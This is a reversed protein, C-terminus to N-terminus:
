VCAIDMELQEGKRPRIANFFRPAKAAALFKVLNPYTGRHKLLWDAFADWSEITQLSADGCYIVLAHCFEINKLVREPRLNGRFLRLEVTDRGVNAIDYRSESRKKGDSFKKEGRECYSNSERQAIMAVRPALTPCNLFVLLKGITLASLASKNIHVHMGCNTTNEGSKATRLPGKLTDAWGFSDRHQELTLPVTVLEVGDNLSGDEKLIFRDGLRGGLSEVVDCQSNHRAPEMELEVGFLLAGNQLAQRDYDCHNLVNEGYDFCESEDRPVNDADVYWYGDESSYYNNAAYDRSVTEGSDETTISESDRVYCEQPESYTYYRRACRQCISTEAETIHPDGDQPTPADCDACSHYEDACSQCVKLDGVEQADDKEIVDSCQECDMTTVADDDGSDVETETTM